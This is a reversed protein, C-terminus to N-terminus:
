SYLGTCARKSHLMGNVTVIFWKSIGMMPQKEACHQAETKFGGM